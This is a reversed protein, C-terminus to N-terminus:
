KETVIRFDHKLKTAKDISKVEEKAYKLIEKDTKDSNGITEYKFWDTFEKGGRVHHEYRCELIRNM